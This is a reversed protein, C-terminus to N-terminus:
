LSLSGDEGSLIGFLGGTAHGQTQQQQVPQTKGLKPNVTGYGTTQFTNVRSVAARKVRVLRVAPQQDDSIAKSRNNLIVRANTFSIMFYALAIFLFISSRM